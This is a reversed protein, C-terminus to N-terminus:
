LHFLIYFASCGNDCVSRLGTKNLSSESLVASGEGPVGQDSECLLVNVGPLLEVALLDPVLSVTSSWDPNLGKSM